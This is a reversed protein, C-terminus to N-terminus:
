NAFKRQCSILDTETALNTERGNVNLMCVATFFHTADSNQLKGYMSKATRIKVRFVRWLHFTAIAATLLSFLIIKLQRM